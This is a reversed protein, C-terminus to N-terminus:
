KLLSKYLLRSKRTEREQEMYFVLDRTTVRRKHQRTASPAGLLSSSTQGGVAESGVASSVGGAAVGDQLAVTSTRKRRSGIAALATENAARNRIMQEEELQL